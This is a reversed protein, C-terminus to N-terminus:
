LCKVVGCLTSGAGSQQCWNENICSLVSTTFDSSNGCLAIHRGIWDGPCASQKMPNAMKWPKDTVNKKLSANKQQIASKLAEVYPEKEYQCKFKDFCADNLKGVKCTPAQVATHPHCCLSHQPPCVNLM